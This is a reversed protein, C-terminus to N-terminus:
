LGIGRPSGLLRARAIAVYDAEREIGVWGFGEMEAALGTTGSGLFPDLVVGGPPTVLRVLHRILDVPKVTPHVNERPPTQRSQFTGPSQEGSSWNPPAQRALQGRVAPERESRDAKPILFFRSYSGATDVPVKGTEGGAYGGYSGAAAEDGRRRPNGGGSQEGGGVVGDIDGDFIPDTLVLNAPWRGLAHQNVGQPEAQAHYPRANAAGITQLPPTGSGALVDGTAIRAADINLAGTGHALVNDAVTGILPKRLLVIPEWAPKLATGWGQWALAEPTVPEGTVPITAQPRDTAFNLVRGKGTWRDAQEGVVARQAGAARDIAKSVDHSKPFGSAYAWVLCDRVEWGSEELGSVMRHYTRTGGFVLAHAGPKAVRLLERGWAECWEQFVASARYEPSTRSTRGFVSERGVDAANLSRRFGDAGDWASGMFELGYPPDAVIADISDPAMAAMVEICDGLHIPLDDPRLDDTM